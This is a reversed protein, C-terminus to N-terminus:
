LRPWVLRYSYVIVLVLVIFDNKASHDCQLSLSHVMFPFINIMSNIASRPIHLSLFKSSIHRARHHVAFLFLNNQCVNQISHWQKEEQGQITPRNRMFHHSKRWKYYWCSEQIKWSPPPLRVDRTARTTRLHGWIYVNESQSFRNITYNTSSFM